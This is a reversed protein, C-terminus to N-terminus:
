MRGSGSGITMDTSMPEDMSIPSDIGMTTEMSVPVHIDMSRRMDSSQRLQKITRNKRRLILCLIVLALFLILSTVILGITVSSM